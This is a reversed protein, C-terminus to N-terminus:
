PAPNEGPPTSVTAQGTPGVDVRAHVNQDGNPTHITVRDGPNVVPPQGAVLAVGAGLFTVLSALLQAVFEPDLGIGVLVIAAVGSASAILGLWLNIPRGAIMPM